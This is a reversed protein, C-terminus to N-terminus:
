APFAAGTAARNMLSQVAAILGWQMGFTTGATRQITTKSANPPNFYPMASPNDAIIALNDIVQRYQMQPLYSSQNITRNAVQAAECGLLVTLSATIAVTRITLTRRSLNRASDMRSIECTQSPGM